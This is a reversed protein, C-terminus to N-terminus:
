VFSAIKDKADKQVRDFAEKGVILADRNVWDDANPFRDADGARIKVGTNLKAVADDVVAHPVIQNAQFEPWDGPDLIRANEGWAVLGPVKATDGRDRVTFTGTFPVDVTWSDAGSQLSREYAWVGSGVLIMVGLMTGRRVKLGQSAKYS